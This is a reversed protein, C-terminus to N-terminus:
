GGAPILAAIRTTAAIFVAILVTDGVLDFGSVPDTGALDASNLYAGAEMDYRDLWRFDVLVALTDGRVSMDLATRGPLGVLSVRRAGGSVRSAVAGPFGVHKVYPYAGVSLSDQFVFFGNGTSFGFAWKGDDGGAVEGYTQIPHMEEFGTWPLAPFATPAGSESVIIWREPGLTGLVYGRDDLVAIGVIENVPGSKSTSPLPADRLRSGEQSLWILRGSGSDAIVTEDHTNVAIARANVLGSSPDMGSGWSWVVGQPGVRHVRQRRVDLVIADGSSLGRIEGASEIRQDVVVWLTDYAADAVLRDGSGSEFLDVPMFTDRADGQVCAALIMALGCSWWRIIM